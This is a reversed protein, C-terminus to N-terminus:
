KASCKTCNCDFRYQEKLKKKREDTSLNEDIYSILIEDGKSLAASTSSNSTITTTTTTDTNSSSLNSDTTPTISSAYVSVQHTIYDSVSVANPNCSHNMCNHIAFAGMGKMSLSKLTETRTAEEEFNKCHLLECVKNRIQVKEHAALHLETIPHITSCNQLILGHLSRYQKVSCLINLIQSIQQAHSKLYEANEASNSCETFYGDQIAYEISEKILQASLSDFPHPEEHQVFREFRHM